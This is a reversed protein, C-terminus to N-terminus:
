GRQIAVRARDLIDQLESLTTFIIYKDLSGADDMYVGFLSNTDSGPMVLLTGDNQTPDHPKHIQM